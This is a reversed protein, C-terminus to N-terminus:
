KLPIQQFPRVIKMGEKTIQSSFQDMQDSYHMCYIKMRIDIPLKVLEPLTAHVDKGFKLLQTDHFIYKIGNLDQQTWNVFKTDATYIFNDGRLAFSPMTNIHQNREVSFMEGNIEFFSKYTIINFYDELKLIGEEGFRLTGELCQKLWPLIEEQVYLNIMRGNYLFKNKFAVEELGYIHDGHMHSIWINELHNLSMLKDLNAPVTHGCDLLLNTNNFQLLASCNGDKYNWANGVGLFTMHKM